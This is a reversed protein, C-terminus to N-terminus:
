CDIVLPAPTMVTVLEAPWVRVPVGVVTVLIGFKLVVFNLLGSNVPLVTVVTLVAELPPEVMTGMRRAPPAYTPMNPRPASIPTSAESNSMKARAPKGANESSSSPVGFSSPSLGEGLAEVDPGRDVVDRADELGDLEPLQETVWVALSQLTRHWGVPVAPLALQLM